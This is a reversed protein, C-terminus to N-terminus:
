KGYIRGIQLFVKYNDANFSLKITKDWKGYIFEIQFNISAEIKDHEISYSNSLKFKNLNLAMDFSITNPIKTRVNFLERIQCNM